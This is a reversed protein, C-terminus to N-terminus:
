KWKLSFSRLAFAPLQSPQQKNWTFTSQFVTTATQRSSNPPTKNTQREWQCKRYIYKYKKYKLNCPLHNLTHKVAKKGEWCPGLSLKQGPNLQKSTSNGHLINVSILFGRYLYIQISAIPGSHVVISPMSLCTYIVLQSLLHSYIM